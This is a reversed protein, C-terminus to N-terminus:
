FIRLKLDSSAEGLKRQLQYDLPYNHNLSSFGATKKKEKVFLRSM